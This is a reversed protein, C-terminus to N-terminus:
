SLSPGVIRDGRCVKPTRRSRRRRVRRDTCRHKPSAFRSPRQQSRRGHRRQHPVREHGRQFISRRRSGRHVVPEPRYSYRRHAAGCPDSFVERDKADWAPRASRSSGTMVAHLTGGRLHTRLVLRSRIRSPGCDTASGMNLRNLTPILDPGQRLCLALEPRTDSGTHAAALVNPHCCSTKQATFM